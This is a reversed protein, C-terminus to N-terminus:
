MESSKEQFTTHQNVNAKDNIASFPFEEKTFAVATRLHMGHSDFFNYYYAWDKILRLNCYLFPSFDPQSKMERRIHCGQLSGKPCNRQRVRYM